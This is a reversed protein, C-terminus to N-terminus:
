QVPSPAAMVAAPDTDPPLGEPQTGAVGNLVDALQKAMMQAHDFQKRTVPTMNLVACNLVGLNTIAKIGAYLADYAQKAKENGEDQTLGTCDCPVVVNVTFALVFNHDEEPTTGETPKTDTTM